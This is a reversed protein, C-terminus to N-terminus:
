RATQQAVGEWHLIAASHDVPGLADLAEALRERVLHSLPSEVGIADALDAAIGVDKTLLALAFGTAFERSLVHRELVNETSFNRGTSANLIEVMVAPDLGFSQGVVLAEAAAVFGAGAVFNNLAKMAHGSGLPGTRFIRESLPEFVPLVREIAQEDDGGLMIALTGDRARPVAGSVPADLLAVGHEALAPALARTDPPDSSSM